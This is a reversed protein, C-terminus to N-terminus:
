LSTLPERYGAAYLSTYAEDHFYIKNGLGSLRFFVGLTFATLLLVRIWSSNVWGKGRKQESPTAIENMQSM